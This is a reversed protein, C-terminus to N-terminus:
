SYLIFTSESLPTYLHSYSAFFCWSFIRGSGHGVFHLCNKIQRFLSPGYGHISSNWQLASEALCRGPVVIQWSIIVLGKESSSVLCDVGTAMSNKSLDRKATQGRFLWTQVNIQSQIMTWMTKKRWRIFHQHVAPIMTEVQSEQLIRSM